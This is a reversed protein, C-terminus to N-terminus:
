GLERTNSMAIADLASIKLQRVHGSIPRSAEVATGVRVDVDSVLSPLTPLDLLRQAELPSLHGHNINDGPTSYRGLVNDANHVRNIDETPINTQYNVVPAQPNYEPIESAGQMANQQEAWERNKLELGQSAHLQASTAGPLEPHPIHGENTAAPATLKWLDNFYNVDVGPPVFNHENIIRDEESRAAEYHKRASEAREVHLREQEKFHAIQEPTTASPNILCGM